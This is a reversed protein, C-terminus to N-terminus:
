KEKIHYLFQKCVIVVGFIFLFSFEDFLSGSIGHWYTSMDKLVYFFLLFFLPFVFIYIKQSKDYMGHVFYRTFTNTAHQHHCSGKTIADEFTTVHAQSGEDRM